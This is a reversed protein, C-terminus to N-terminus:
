KVRQYFFPSIIKLGIEAYDFIRETSGVFLIGGLRLAKTFNRYLQDKASAEFYIVVNRCIILDLSQPFSDQLMNHKKFEVRKKVFDKVKYSGDLLEFYKELYAKPTSVMSRAEYVGAKAEELAREDLDTALVSATSPANLEELLIALSYPEEGSACGASWAKFRGKSSVLLEPLYKDRLEWWKEPNRFFETVNITLKDLFEEKAAPNSLLFRLYEQFSSLRYKKILIEIRRKVRHPKYGSLDLGFYRHVEKVFWQFDEMPLDGSFQSLFDQM